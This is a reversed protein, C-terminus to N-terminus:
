ETKYKKKFFEAVGTDMDETTLTEQGSRYLIGWAYDTSRREPTITIIGDPGVEFNLLDGTKLNLQKRIIKPITVQGKSTITSEPM